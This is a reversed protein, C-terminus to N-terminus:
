EIGRLAIVINAWQSAARRCEGRFLESAESTDLAVAANTLLLHEAKKLLADRSM